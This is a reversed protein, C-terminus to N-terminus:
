SLPNDQKEAKERGIEMTRKKRAREDCDDCAFYFAGGSVFFAGGEVKQGNMAKEEDIFREAGCFDCHHPKKPKEFQIIKAM